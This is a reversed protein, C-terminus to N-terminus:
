DNPYISFLLGDLIDIDCARVLILPYHVFKNAVRIGAQATLPQANAASASVDARTLPHHTQQFTVISPADEVDSREEEYSVVKREEAQQVKKMAAQQKNLMPMLEKNQTMVPERAMNQPQQVVQQPFKKIAPASPTSDVAQTDVPLWESQLLM